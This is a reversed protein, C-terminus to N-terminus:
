NGDCDPDVTCQNGVCRFPFACEAEANCAADEGKRTACRSGDCYLGGGCPPGDPVPCDANEELHPVCTKTEEGLCAHGPACALPDTCEQEAGLTGAFPSDCHLLFFYTEVRAKCGLSRYARVCRGAQAADYAVLGETMLDKYKQLESAKFSGAYYQSCAAEGQFGYTIELRTIKEQTCCAYLNACTARGVEEALSELPVDGTEGGDADQGADSDGNGGNGDGSCAVMVFCVWGMVLALSTRCSLEM